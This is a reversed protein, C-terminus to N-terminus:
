SARSALLVFDLVFGVISYARHFKWNSRLIYHYTQKCPHWSLLIQPWACRQLTPLLNTLGRIWYACLRGVTLHKYCVGDGWYHLVLEWIGHTKKQLPQPSVLWNEFAKEACDTSVMASRLFQLSWLFILWTLIIIEWAKSKLVLWRLPCSSFSRDGQDPVRLHFRRSLRTGQAAGSRRKGVYILM